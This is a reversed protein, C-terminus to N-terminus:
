TGHNVVYVVYVSGRSGDYGIHLGRANPLMVQATRLNKAKNPDWFGEDPGLGGGGGPEFLSPDIPTSALFGPWDAAPIELKAEVLDDIGRERHVGILKTGAPFTVSLEKSVSELTDPGQESM